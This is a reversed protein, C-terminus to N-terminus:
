FRIEAGLQLNRPSRRTTIQGFDSNTVTLNPSGLNQHNLVNFAEVRLRLEKDEYFRVSKIVSANWSFNVPGYV